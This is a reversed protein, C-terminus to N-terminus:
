AKPGRGDDTVDGRITEVAHPLLEAIADFQETCGKVSGPLTLILTSNCAGAVGRSMYARITKASSRSRALEMLGSHPRQIVRMAAEPTVDRPALGTGGTTLILDIGADLTSWARLRFEILDAEDPVCATEVRDAGFVNHCREVLAPGSLDVAEGRSCRDSITLVAAQIPRHLAAAAPLPPM